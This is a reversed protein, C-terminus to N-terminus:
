RRASYAVAEFRDALARGEPGADERLRRAVDAVQRRRAAREAMQALWDDQAEVRVARFHQLFLHPDHFVDPEVAEQEAVASPLPSPAASGAALGRVGFSRGVTAGDSVTSAGARAPPAARTQRRVEAPRELAPPAAPVSDVRSAERSAPVPTGPIQWGLDRVGVIVVASTLAAAALPPLYRAPDIWNGFALLGDWWRTRAEGDAIRAVVRDALHSPVEPTPLDRLLELTKRLARLDDACARCGDLHADFLARQGISMDGQLYEGMSRRVEPHNM